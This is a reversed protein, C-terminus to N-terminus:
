VHQVNNEHSNLFSIENNKITFQLNLSNRHPIKCEFYLLEPHTKYLSIEIDASYFFLLKDGCFLCNLIKESHDQKPFVILESVWNKIM